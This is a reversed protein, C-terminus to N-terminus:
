GTSMETASRAAAARSSAVAPPQPAPGEELERTEALRAGAQVMEALARAGDGPHADVAAIADGLLVVEYGLALADLVTARVCWDTALGAVFLRRTRAADLQRGLDTGDFASYAERSAQVAKSVICTGGPLELGPGFDAGATGAVAHAPWPGGRTTFSCHDPPHWDRSAAVTLRARVFTELAARARGLAEDGLAVPLSGGPLFDRQLDVLLLTDGTRLLLRDHTPSCTAAAAAPAPRAVRQATVAAVPVTQPTPQDDM